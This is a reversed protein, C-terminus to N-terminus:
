ITLVALCYNSIYDILRTVLITYAVEFNKVNELFIYQPLTSLKSLLAILHLLPKARQDESDKLKGGRTYPQISWCDAKYRSVLVLRRCFNSKVSHVTGV